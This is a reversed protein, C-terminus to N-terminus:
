KFRLNKQRSLSDPSHWSASLNYVSVQQSFLNKKQQKVSHQIVYKLASYIFRCKEQLDVNATPQTKMGDGGM